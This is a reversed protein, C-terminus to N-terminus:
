TRAGQRLAEKVARGVLVRVLHKKYAASGHNDGVLELTAAAAEGARALAADDARRGALAQEAAVLRTPRDTAAGLVISAQGITDGQADLAVALGISPWDDATRTTWKLYAARKAGLAPITVATILEHRAVATELYGTVLQEVPVLREGERSAIVVQAGLASLVPPLDMHPDGHALHGGLTAVNRVRVNSLTLLTQALVPFRQRVLTSHELDSLTTLAGVRLDGAPGIELGSLAKGVKRLSVLRRPRFVGAKMMLMVATGGSVPRVNPDDPDLLALAETLTAPEALEFPAM